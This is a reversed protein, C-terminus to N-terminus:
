DDDDEAWQDLVQRYRSQLVTLSIARSEAEYVIRGGALIILRDSHILSHVPDHSTFLLTHGLRKLDDLLMDLREAARMDLGTYPEDLLVLDPDHMLARAIAVRQRQGHSLSRVLVDQKSHLRVHALLENAREPWMLIGYLRGFFALNEWVTLHPYLFATHAVLGVQRRM